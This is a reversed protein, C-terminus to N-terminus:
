KYSTWEVHATAAMDYLSAIFYHSLIETTFIDLCSCTKDPNNINFLFLIPLLTAMVKKTNISTDGTSNGLLISIPLEKLAFKKNM